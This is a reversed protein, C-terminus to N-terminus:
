PQQEEHRRWEDFTSQAFILEAIQPVISNGLCKLRDVRSPVGHAVRGVDPETAWWERCGDQSSGRHERVEGQASELERHRRVNGGNTSDAMSAGGHESDFDRARAALGHPQEERRESDSNGVPYAVIWIRERRHPAGVDSARIDQWEADYGLAAFEGLVRDLGRSVLAGVNEMIAHRPRLEGVLRIAEFFLGSREGALGVGKGAVSIDQCPFGGAIIWEGEPLDAGRIARIDGLAIADAFRKRYVSIAYDDVESFYHRDFRLGAWEAGLAFGGIGAFLDLFNM